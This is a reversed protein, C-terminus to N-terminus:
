KHPLEPPTESKIIDILANEADQVLTIMEDLFGDSFDWNPNEKSLAQFDIPELRIGERTEPLQDTKKDMDM